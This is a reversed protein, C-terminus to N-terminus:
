LGPRTSPSKFHNPMYMAAFKARTTTKVRVPSDLASWVWIGIHAVATETDAMHATKM